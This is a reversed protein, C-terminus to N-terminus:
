PVTVRFINRQATLKAYAYVAPDPGIFAEPVALKRAGPLDAADKASEIGGAPLRPLIAGPPLPVAFMGQAWITFYVSRSDASWSLFPVDGRFGGTRSVITPAGDRVSYVVVANATDETLGNAWAAIHQGDPSVGYLLYVPHPLALKQLGTGDDQVRYIATTDNEQAAFFVDRGAGFFANLAHGTAISRPAIRGDLNAISVAGRGGESNSVFVVRQGDRSLSYHEMLSDPMLRQREGSELNLVWLASQIEHYGGTGTARVLFYLRKGDPSFSPLFAFADSTVQRDGKLDHVWLTSNRTGVSTLFSRGDAAFDLGEEETPGFTVQEVAGDPFPQRWVHYGGGSDATFYMWKGDPSWAAATCQASRPGVKRGKSSGDYPVLRCPQWGNFGMEALLVQTGDPSLYSFHDMIGDQVYVTREDARSETASVIGMTIGKGTLASFLVRSQMTGDPRKERIWNLGEANSLLHRPEQRGYVPVVWTNWETGAESLATYAIQAGDPSFRPSMKLLRDHTLQVPEGSPLLQMYIQGPGIFSDPGRVFAVMRGDPSLAPQTASDALRTLQTFEPRSPRKDETAVPARSRTLWLTVAAAVAIVVAGAAFTRSFGSGVYPVHRGGEQGGSGQRLRNPPGATTVASQRTVRRLDVVMDAMSQFRDAPNKELAKDVITRVPLPVRDPLPEAPRHLIAHMVDVDSAGVYARREALAEYLVLGLSFIDSRADLPQGTTQEPSMYAVTGLVVGPKTRHEAVSRTADSGSLDHVKALGFDALKAYGSKTILINDPKIDRHLIGAQHAAALGDAVGTLLELVDRWERRAAHMWDKLTGGDVLETVLYQHDEFEGADHVTLIHPHNLSSAMQAERQFRRRASADALQGALFKIAVPRNLKTDVARYVKGMGGEGILREIQYPGIQSGATLDVAYNYTLATRVQM